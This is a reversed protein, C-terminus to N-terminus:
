QDLRKTAAPATRYTTPPLAVVRYFRWPFVPVDHIIFTFQGPSNMGLAVWAGALNTTAELRLFREPPGAVNIQLSGDPLLVPAAIKVSDHPIIEVTVPASTVSGFQSVLRAFLTSLGPPQNTLLFVYPPGNTASAALTADKYLEVRVTKPDAATDASVSVSAPSDFLAGSPPNTIAIPAM